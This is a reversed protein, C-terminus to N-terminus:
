RLTVTVGGYFNRLPAANYYRGGFANIDNGLSYKQNLLNDAGAFFNMKVKETTMGEWTVKAQLLQYNDAYASNADNLPLRAVNTSQIFLNLTNFFGLSLTAVVSSAPVGTVRNGSYDNTEVTYNDFRFHSRTYSLMLNVGTVVGRERKNLLTSNVLLEAGTQKTGGANLFYDTDDTARRVIANTLDYRFVSGDFQIRGNWLSIRTGIEKNWGSEAQLNTNIEDGSPRIEAITPPSYGRSVSVRMSVEPLFRYTAGFRPMWENDLQADGENFTYSYQNFSVAAEATFRDAVDVTVKSFYVGQRSRAEDDSKLAGKKGGSNDFNSIQQNGVQGEIGAYAKVDLRGSAYGYELFSRIGGNKEDRLEYNTIFPNKYDTFTGYVSIVHRFASSLSTTNTVGGFFTTNYIGAHQTVAGPVSSAAPRAQEPNERFQAENLGGPTEYHLDSFMATVSVSNASGYRLSASGLLNLRKMASQERYGDSRQYAEGINWSIRKSSGGVRIHQRFLGYSGGSVSATLNSSDPKTEFLVVGGSNAGFLSGDPGKLIEARTIFVPDVLNLYTNGSADTFPLDNLYVKVNRVGFPSRLLSGRISLRYSGPSREEMRIGPITNLVPLLSQQSGTALAKSNLAAVSAPIQVVPQRSLYGTIVVEELSQKLTDQDQAIALGTCGGSLLLVLFLRNRWTFTLPRNVFAIVHHCSRFVFEIKWRAIHKQNLCAILGFLM